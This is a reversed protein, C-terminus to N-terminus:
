AGIMVGIMDSVAVEGPESPDLTLWQGYLHAGDLTPDNPIQLTWAAFGSPDVALTDITVPKHTLLCNDWGLFDLPVAATTPMEFGLSLFTLPSTVVNEVTFKFATGRGGTGSWGSRLTGCTAGYRNVRGCSRTLRVNPMFVNGSTLVSTAVTPTAGTWGTAYARQGTNALARCSIGNTAADSRMSGRIIVEVVLDSVGDYVFPEDIGLESWADDHCHWTYNQQLLVNQPAPMNQAFSSTMTFGAPVHSMRVQLARSWHRGDRSPAFALGTIPGAGGLDSNDVKLQYRMNTGNAADARMRLRLRPVVASEGGGAFAQATAAGTHMTAVSNSFTPLTPELRYEFAFNRCVIAVGYQGAPLWLPESTAVSTLLGSGLSVGDFHTMALWSSRTTELGVHSGGVPTRYVDGIIATGAPTAVGIAFSELYCDQTVDLDFFLTAGVPAADTPTGSVILNAPNAGGWPYQTFASTTLGLDPGVACPTQAPAVACVATLILLFAARPLYRM